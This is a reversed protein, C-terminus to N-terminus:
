RVNYWKTVRGTTNRICVQQRPSCTVSYSQDWVETVDSDGGFLVSSKNPACIILAVSRNQEEYIDANFMFAQKALMGTMHFLSPNKTVVESITLSTTLFLVMMM